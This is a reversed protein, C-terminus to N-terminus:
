PVHGQSSSATWIRSHDASKEQRHYGPGGTDRCGQPAGGNEVRYPLPRANVNFEESLWQRLHKAMSILRRLGPTRGPKYDWWDLEPESSEHVLALALVSRAEVPWEAREYGEYYPSKDYIEYSPSDKLPAVGTIGALSAGLAKAKEVIQVTLDPHTRRDRPM